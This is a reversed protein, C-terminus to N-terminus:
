WGEHKEGSAPIWRIKKEEKNKPKWYHRPTKSAGNRWNGPGVSKRYASNKSRAAVILGDRTRDSLFFLPYSLVSYNSAAPNEFFM